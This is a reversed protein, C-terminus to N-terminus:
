GAARVSVPGAPSAPERVALAACYLALLWWFLLGWWASYFALHTNLPFCMAVLALGPALARERAAADARRWARLAFGAGALWLMLGFVGTESLVELVIQHAHSAGVDSATDVFQDGPAAYQPYAYRFGRVGVGNSPHALAMKAATRWIRIRGASAADVASETGDLALLSRQIRAGFRESDRLALTALAAVGLAAVALVVLFQRHSRTERWALLLCVLGYALWAARSGALLIPPSLLVFAFALGGRGLRARAALLVFPSLVALTPGLKLNAAGFIGSLREKEAAGGLSHGSAMQVYADAVWCLVVVAVTTRVAPWSADRRLAWAAFLAFPLFRLTVAVTSWTKGPEIANIGSVLAPLWYCAFLVLVLRNGDARWDLRGCALLVLSAIAGLVVPAEASRGFPLLVAVALVLAVPWASLFRRAPADPM